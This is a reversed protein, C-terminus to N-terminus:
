KDKKIMSMQGRTYAADRTASNAHRIAEISLDNARDINKDNVDFHDAHMKIRVLLGIVLITTSGAGICLLTLVIALARQIAFAQMLETIITEM